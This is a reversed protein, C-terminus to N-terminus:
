MESLLTRAYIHYRKADIHDLNEVAKIFSHKAETQRNRSKYLLGLNIYSQGLINKFGFKEALRISELIHREARKKAFPVNKIIFGINKIIISLKMPERAVAMQLYFKGLIHEQITRMACWGLQKTENYAESILLLGKSMTGLAIMTIGLSFKAPIGLYGCDFEEYYRVVETLVKEAEVFMQKELFSFGLYIKSWQTYFPDVSVEIAKSFTDIAKDLEGSSIHSLGICIHGTVLCRYNSNEKGYNILEMGLGYCKRGDGKYWYVQGLGARPKYFLFHDQPFRESLSLAIKGHYISDDILGLDWGNFILWTSSYALVKNLNNIKGIDLAKEFYPYSKNIKGRLYLSFGLWTHFEGLLESDPFSEALGQFESLIDTLNKFDGRYYHVLSWDILLQILIKQEEISRKDKRNLLKFAELYNEHAEKVAFRRLHKDGSKTLYDLAKDVLGSETFHYSLSEYFEPLRDKFLREIEFGIKGHIEKRQSKLLSNYAVEQTLAHKFKYELEPKLSKIQLLDLATLESLHKDISDSFLTIKKLLQYNFTRGIVSAEQFVIKRSQEMSDLRANLVGQITSPVNISDIETKLIWEENEKCLIENEILSNIVEELFFPNGETKICVFKYLENPVDSSKLLSKLMLLTDYESLERLEILSSRSNPYEITNFFSLDDSPRYTLIFLIKSSIQNILFLLLDIFSPDAWHLDEFCIIINKEKRLALILAEVSKHLKKKWAEPSISATEPYELSFLNGIFTIYESSDGLLQSVRFEIKKKIVEHTDKEDINFVQTLLNILPYYPTKQSHDYAHGETWLINESRISEKLEKKLRSKGTGPEGRILLISGKGKELEEVSETLLKIEDDRGTLDAQIGHVRHTKLSDRKSSLVKHVSVPHEKGKIKVYKIKDFVFFNRTLNYTEPGIGIEDNQAIGELRSALNIADGTLGHIGKDVDYKGTVVLGTNIGTHLFLPQGIMEEFQPSIKKVASHMDLAAKIARIPDDEHVTPMGFVAMVADGILKEIFGEYYKIIRIIKGFIHDMIKKVDEPDLRETMSTYGSLDSFMITVLKREGKTPILVEGDHDYLQSGCEMCYKAQLQIIANCSPCKM